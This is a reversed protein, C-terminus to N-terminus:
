KVSHRLSAAAQESLEHAAPPGAEGSSTVARLRDVFKMLHFTVLGSLLGFAVNAIVMPLLLVYFTKPAEVFAAVAVLTSIRAAAAGMGVVAYVLANPKKFVSTVFPMVLDVFLGPAVHRLIDFPGFKGGMGMLFSTIGVILGFQSAGWRSTTLIHAFIYLPIVIIGKHGPAVPIGPMFKLLRLTMALVSLGAVVALDNLVAPALNYAAGSARARGIQREIMEALLGVDGRLARKIVIAPRSGERQEKNRGKGRGGGRESEEPGLASLVLDLSYALYPPVRLARLGDVIATRSGTRQVLQSALILTAIRSSLLLGTAIGTLNVPLEVGFAILKYISDGEEWNFFAYSLLVFSIFVMLRRLSALFLSFSLRAAFWLVSQLGLLSLLVLPDSFVFAVVGVLLVYLLKLRPDDM